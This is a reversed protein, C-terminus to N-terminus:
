RSSRSDRVQRIRQVLVDRACEPLLIRRQEFADALDDEAGAHRARNRQQLLGANQRNRHDGLDLQRIAVHRLSARDDGHGSRVPLRRRGREDAFDQLDVSTLRDHGAVDALRQDGREIEFPRAGVDQLQRRELELRDVGEAGVDRQQQVDRGIVHIAVGREVRVGRGLVADEAILLRVVDGDDVGGIAASRRAIRLRAHPAKELAFDISSPANRSPSSRTRQRSPCSRRMGRADSFSSPVAFTSFASAAHSAARATPTSSTLTCIAKPDNAPNGCRMTSTRSSSPTRQILSEFPVFTSAVSLDSSDNGGDLTQSM